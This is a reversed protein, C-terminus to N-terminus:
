LTRNCFNREWVKQRLASARSQWRAAIARTRFPKFTSRQKQVTPGPPTPWDRNVCRKCLTNESRWANKSVVM